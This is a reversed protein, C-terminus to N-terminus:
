PESIWQRCLRICDKNFMLSAHRSKVYATHSAFDCDMESHSVVGDHPYKLWPAEYFATEGLIVRVDCSPNPGTYGHCLTSLVPGSFFSLTPIYPIMRAVRSGKVPSSCIIVRRVISHSGSALAILGGLSHGVLVVDGSFGSQRLGDLFSLVRDAVTEVTNTMSDYHFSLCPIGLTDKLYGVKETTDWFGHLVVCLRSASLIEKEIPIFRVKNMHNVQKRVGNSVSVDNWSVVLSKIQM